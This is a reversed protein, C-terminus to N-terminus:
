PNVASLRARSPRRIPRGDGWIADPRITYTLAIGKKGEATQEIRATGRELDPLETCLMCILQWNKDYVTFPRRAMSLIYTKALMSDINPNFNGPYQSIGIVLEDKAAATNATPAALVGFFLATFVAAMCWMRMM